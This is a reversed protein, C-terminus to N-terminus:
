RGARRGAERGAQSGAKRGLKGERGDSVMVHTSNHTHAEKYASSCANAYACCERSVEVQEPDSATSVENSMPVDGSLM